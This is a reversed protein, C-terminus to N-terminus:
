IVVVKTGVRVRDYLDVVDENRMRICGSSVAQGITWPENSGHIRYLSSGLYMARAGLPNNPGGAMFSPLDPRRKLMEEPPRWDPWETKRTISKVGAWTFGPRGVGIGYRVAKGGPQVLLLFRRPTDIIITGPKEGGDYAVVQKLYRPDIAPRAPEAAVGPLARPDGHVHMAPPPPPPMMSPQELVHPQLVPPASMPQMAPGGDYRRGRPQGGRFLFEIFGGGLDPEAHRYQQAVPAPPPAPAAHYAPSIPLPQAMAAGAGFASATLALLVFRQM